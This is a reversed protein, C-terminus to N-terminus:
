STVGIDKPLYRCAGVELITMGVAYIDTSKSPLQKLLEETFGFREPYMLEPAMWRITGKMEGTVATSRGVSGNLVVSLGFDAL